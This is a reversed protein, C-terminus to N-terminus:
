IKTYSVLCNEWLEACIKALIIGLFRVLGKYGGPYTLEEYGQDEKHRCFSGEWSNFAEFIGAAKSSIQYFEAKEKFLFKIWFFVAILHMNQTVTANKCVKEDM